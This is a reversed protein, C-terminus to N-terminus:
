RSRRWEEQHRPCYMAHKWSHGPCCASCFAIELCTSCRYKGPTGTEKWMHGMHDCAILPQTIKLYQVRLWKFVQKM